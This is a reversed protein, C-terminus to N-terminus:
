KSLLELLRSTDSENLLIHFLDPSFTPQNYVFNLRYYYTLTYYTHLLGYMLGFLCM